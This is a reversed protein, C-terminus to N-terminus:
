RARRILERYVDALEGPRLQGPGRFAVESHEDSVVPTAVPDKLECAFAVIDVWRGPVAELARVDLLPGVDVELGAEERLERCLTDAFVEGRQPRGGPLEWEGRHNRCLLVRGQVDGCVGKVSVPRESSATGPTALERAVRTAMLHYPGPLRGVTRDFPIEVEAVDVLREGDHFQERTLDIEIGDSLRNFYHFGAPSGDARRVHAMLLTGGFTDHVILATSACQGSAPDDASWDDGSSDHHDAPDATWVSWAARLARELETLTPASVSALM